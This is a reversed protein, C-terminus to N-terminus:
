SIYSTHNNKKILTKNKTEEDRYQSVDGYIYNSKILDKIYLMDNYSYKDKVM